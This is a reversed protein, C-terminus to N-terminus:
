SEPRSSARALCPGGCPDVFDDNGNRYVNRVQTRVESEDFKTATLALCRAGRRVATGVDRHQCRQPGGARRARAARSGLGRQARRAGGLQARRGANACLPSLHSPLLRAMALTSGEALRAALEPLLFHTDVAFGMPAAGAGDARPLTRKRHGPALSRETALSSPRCAGRMGVRGQPMRACTGACLMSSRPCHHPRAPLASRELEGHAREWAAGEGGCGRLNVIHGETVQM